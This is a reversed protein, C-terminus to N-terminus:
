NEKVHISAPTIKESFNIKNKARTWRMNEQLLWLSYPVAERVLVCNRYAHLLKSSGHRLQRRACKFMLPLCSKKSGRICPIGETSLSSSFCNTKTSFLQFYFIFYIYSNSVRNRKHTLWRIDPIADLICSTAHENLLECGM